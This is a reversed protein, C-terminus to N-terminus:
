HLARPYPFPKYILLLSDIQGKNEIKIIGAGEKTVVFAHTSKYVYPGIGQTTRLGCFYYITSPEPLALQPNVSAIYDPSPLLVLASSDNVRKKIEKSLYYGSGWRMQKRIEIDSYNDVEKINSIEEYGGKIKQEFFFSYSEMHKIFLLAFIFLVCLLVSKFSLFPTTVARPDAIAPDNTGSPQSDVTKKPKM